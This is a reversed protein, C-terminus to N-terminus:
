ADFQTGAGAELEDRAESISLAARYPRNETMARYADCVAVIRAGLPIARGSLGDPYGTGDWREHHHRVIPLIGQLSQIPRLIHEGIEPHTKMVLWEEATLPGPKNLIAEPVRVKGIDHLVAGLEINRVQELGLGLEAAVAVALRVVEETHQSTVADKAELANSLSALTERYLRQARDEHEFATLLAGIQTAALEALHREGASFSRARSDYVEILGWPENDSVLPILLVAQMDMERLVFLEAPDAGPDATSIASPMRSELVAAA